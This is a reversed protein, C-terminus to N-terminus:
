SKQDAKLLEYEESHQEDPDTVNGNQDSDDSNQDSSPSDAADATDKDEMENDEKENDKEEEEENDSSKDKSKKSEPGFYEHTYFPKFSDFFGVDALLNPLVWLHHKGFTVLWIGVFLLSRFIAVGFVSGVFIGGLISLYYILIRVSNPWLPFLTAAIVGLLLLGGKLLTNPHLPNYMWVYIDSSDYFIQEEHVQLKYRKKKKKEEGEKKEEDKKTDPKKDSEEGNTEKEEKNEETNKKRKRTTSKPEEEVQKKNGKKEEKDLKPVKEARYFLKSSLLKEMFAIADDRSVFVPGRKTTTKAWKSKMLTDVAKSGVFYEINEKQMVTTKKPTKFRVHKAMEQEEKGPQEYKLADFKNKRRKSM